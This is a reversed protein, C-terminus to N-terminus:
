LVVQPDAIDETAVVSLSRAQSTLYVPPHAKKGRLFRLAFPLALSGNLAYGLGALIPIAIVGLKPLLLLGGSVLTAAVVLQLSAKTKVLSLGVLLVGNTESFARLLGYCALALLFGLAPVMAQGAWVAILKRGVILLGANIVAVLGVVGCLTRLARRRIWQWDGNGSAEAYAPMYSNAVLYAAGNIIAFLAYPIAYRPVMAPSLRNAILVNASYLIGINAVQDLAMPAGISFLSRLSQLNCLRWSPRLEPHRAGFVFAGLGLQAVLPPAVMVLAYALLSPGHWMLILLLFLSGISGALSAFSGFYGEQLSSCVMPFTQLGITVAFAMGCAAALLRADGALAPNHAVGLLRPLGGWGAVLWAAGVLLISLVTYAVLGTSIHRRMETVDIRGSAKAVVNVLGTSLGLDALGGWAVLSGVALWLGYREVGLLKLSLPIVAARIAYTVIQVAVGAGATKMAQRDRRRRAHQETLTVTAM